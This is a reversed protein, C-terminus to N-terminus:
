TRNGETFPLVIKFAAGETVQLCEIEGEHDTIIKKVIALGLGMNDKGTKTSFYPEFIKKQIHTPIAKGSNSLTIEVNKEGSKVTIGLTIDTGPNAEVANLILNFLAQRFLNEDIKSLNRCERVGSVQFSVRPWQEKYQNFLSDLLPGVETVNLQVSPLKAFRSFSETMKRLNALEDQMLVSTQGIKETLQENKYTAAIKPLGSSLVELPTAANKLEHALRKAVEQWLSIEELYQGREQEKKWEEVAKRYLRDARRSFWLTAILAIIIGVSLAIFFYTQLARNLKQKIFSSESYIEKLEQVEQFRDRYSKADNPNLERLQKLDKQANDLVKPISSHFAVSLSTELVEGLFLYATGLPLVALILVILILERKITTRM